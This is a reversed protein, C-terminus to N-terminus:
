SVAPLVVKGVTTLLFVVMVMGSHTLMSSDVQPHRFYNEWQGQNVSTFHQRIFPYAIETPIETCPCTFDDRLGSAFTWEHNHPNGLSISVGDVHADEINKVIKLDM